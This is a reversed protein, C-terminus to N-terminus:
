IPVKTVYIKEKATVIWGSYWTPVGGHKMQFIGVYM